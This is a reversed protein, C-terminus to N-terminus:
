RPDGERRDGGTGAFMMIVGIWFAAATEWDRGEEQMLILGTIALAAGAVIFIGARLDSLHM